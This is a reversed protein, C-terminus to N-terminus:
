GAIREVTWYLGTLGILLSGALRIWRFSLRKLFTWTALFAVILVTLQGCEVGLNFGLLPKFISGKPIDLDQMVSAFGM